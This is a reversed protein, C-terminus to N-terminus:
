SIKLRRVARARFENSKHYGNQSGSAFTQVWAYDSDSAHQEGSWYWASKFEKKLNAFLLAQERRSPLEGGNSKAWEMADSWKTNEAEGPRLFLHYDSEGDEGLILGAYREGEKLNEKLFAAKAAAQGIM